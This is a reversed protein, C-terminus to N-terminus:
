ELGVALPTITPDDQEGLVAGRVLPHMLDEGAVTETAISQGDQMAAHRLVLALLDFSGEL